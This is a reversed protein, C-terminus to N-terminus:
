NQSYNITNSETALKKYEEKLDNMNGFPKKSLKDARENKERPIWNFNITKAKLQAINRDILRKHKKISEQKANWSGRAINIALKSDGFVKIIGDEDEFDNILYDLSVRLANFEMDNTTLNKKGTIWSEWEEVKKGRKKIQFGIAGYKGPNEYKLAGDFHVKIIENNM